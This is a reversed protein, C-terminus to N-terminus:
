YTDDYNESIELENNDNHLVSFGDLSTQDILPHTRDVGTDIIICKIM